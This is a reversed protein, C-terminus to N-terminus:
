RNEGDQEDHENEKEDRTLDQRVQSEFESVQESAEVVQEPTIEDITRSLGYQERLADINKLGMSYMSVTRMAQRIQARDKDKEEESLEEYPKAQDPNGYEEDYVWDNRSLWAEHVKSSMQELYERALDPNRMQKDYVQEVAVKAAELNEYQWDSPLQEFSLNAIDVEDTGHQKIWDEDKTKKMRPEYKGDEQKRTERWAEHLDAAMSYSLAEKVNEDEKIQAYTSVLESNVPKIKGTSLQTMFNEITFTALESSSFQSMDEGKKCLIYSNGVVFQEEGMYKDYMNRGVRYQERVPKPQYGHKILIDIIQKAMEPEVELNGRASVGGARGIIDMIENEDINAKNENNEIFDKCAKEFEAKKKREDLLEQVNNFAEQQKIMVNQVSDIMRSFTFADSPNPLSVFDDINALDPTFPMNIKNFHGIINKGKKLEEFVRKGFHMYDESFDADMEEKLVGDQEIIQRNIQMMQYLIDFERCNPAAIIQYGKYMASYYSNTKRSMQALRRSFMHLSEDDEKAIVEHNQEFNNRANNIQAVIDETKIDSEPNLEIILGDIHFSIAQGGELLEVLKDLYTEKGGINEYYIDYRQM